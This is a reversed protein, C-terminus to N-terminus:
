TVANLLWALYDLFRALFFLDKSHDDELKGGRTKKHENIRSKLDSLCRAPKARTVAVWKTPQTSNFARM